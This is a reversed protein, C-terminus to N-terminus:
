HGLARKLEGALEAVTWTNDSHIAVVRGSPDIVATRLNHTITGDKERIVNVGFAVAFRDVVADPATAFAWVGPDAGQKKAHAQLVANSDHDPDFSVSLLRIRGRLNPDNAVTQQLEAFRRDLLPCYQALPCRTYIFTVAVASGRWDKLSVPKGDAGALPTEPADDGSQLIHINAAVPIATAADEPLPATGTKTIAALWAGGDPSVRLTAKILDGAARGQLVAADKVAYPMTMAPMFGPIDEHKVLVEQATADIALIQGQLEYSRAEPPHSCSVVFGLLVAM